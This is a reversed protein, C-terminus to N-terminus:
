AACASRGDTDEEHTGKEDRMATTSGSSRASVGAEESEIAAHWKGEAQGASAGQGLSMLTWQSHPLRDCFARQPAHSSLGSPM